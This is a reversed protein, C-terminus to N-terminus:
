GSFNISKKNYFNKGVPSIIEAYVEYENEGTDSFLM